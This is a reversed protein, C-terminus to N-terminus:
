SLLFIHHRQISLIPCQLCQLCFAHAHIPTHTHTHSHTHTDFLFHSLFSCSFHYLSLFANFAVGSFISSKFFLTELFFDSLYLLDGMHSGTKKEWTKQQSTALSVCTAPRSICMPNTKLFPNKSFCRMQYHKYLICMSSNIGM